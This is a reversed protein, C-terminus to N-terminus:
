VAVSIPSRVAPTQDSSLEPLGLVSSNASVLGVLMTPGMDVVTGLPSSLTVSPEAATNVAGALLVSSGDVVYWTTRAPPVSASRQAVVLSTSVPAAPQDIAWSPRRLCVTGVTPLQPPTFLVYVMNIRTLPTTRGATSVVAGVTVDMTRWSGVDEGVLASLRVQRTVNLSATSFTSAVSKATLPALLAVSDTLATEPTVPACSTVALPPLKAPTVAVTVRDMAEPWLM